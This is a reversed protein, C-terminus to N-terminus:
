APSPLLAEVVAGGLISSSGITLSGGHADTVLEHVVALGIGQGPVDPDARQGREVVAAVLKPDIGPGDDHIAVTLAGEKNKTVQVYVKHSAWKCANDMLNGLLEMLDGEDIRFACDGDHRVEVSLAKDRYVKDLTRKLTAAVAAVDIPTGIMTGGTASARQLQYGVSRDMRTVQEGVVARLEGEDADVAGRMVALPTKLSHALDALAHRYRSLRRDAVEVLGNIAEVLPRLESPFEGDLRSREGSQIAELARTARRLPALGLALVVAQTMALVGIAIAFWLTLSARFADVSSEFSSSDEAVEIVYRTVGGDLDEWQTAFSRVFYRKGFAGIEIANAAQGDGAPVPFSLSQGDLWSRSRWLVAGNGDSVRAYLGSEPTSFRPDPPADFSTVRGQQDIVTAALVALIQVGLRTQTLAESDRRYAADIAVGTLVLCAAAVAASMLVLRVTLSM